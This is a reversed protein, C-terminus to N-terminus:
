KSNKHWSVLLPSALFISSYTGILIGVLLTLVFHKISEGGILFLALLVIITTLSTNISRVLTSNVSEEASEEISKQPNKIFNERLRDYVVITDHVSFGMITLLATIFLSDIEMWIFFHGLLAIIGATILLDHLLALVALSGFKWSSLPKPVKRFSFAIFLIIAISALIISLISKNTLDKGVTPGINDYRVEEIDGVKEKISLLIQDHKEKEIPELRLTYQADSSPKLQYNNVKQEDLSEEILEIVDSKESELVIMAGGKYDIGIRLGFIFISAISLIVLLSSLIFWYKRKRIIKYM